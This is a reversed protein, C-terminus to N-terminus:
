FLYRIAIFGGIILIVFALAVQDFYRDIFRKIPGGFMWILGAMSFYRLSRAVITGLIFAVLSIRFVGGAITFVKYPIPSLAAAFISWFAQADFVTRVQEYEEFLGYFDLIRVGISEFFFVGIIYGVIGGLLSGVTCLLAFFFSRSRDGLCLTVLLADPPVPFFSSSGFAMLFLALPGYPTYAWHLVWDYLRRVYKSGIM